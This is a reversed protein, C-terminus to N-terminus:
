GVSILRIWIYYNSTSLLGCCKTTSFQSKIINKGRCFLEHMEVLFVVPRIVRSVPLQYTYSLQNYSMLHSLGGKHTGYYAFPLRVSSREQAIEVHVATEGCRPTEFTHGIAFETGEASWRGRHSAKYDKARSLRDPPVLTLPPLVWSRYYSRTM